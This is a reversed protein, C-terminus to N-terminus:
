FRNICQIEVDKVKYKKFYREYEDKIFDACSMSFKKLNDIKLRSDPNLPKDIKLDKLIMEVIKLEKSEISIYFRYHMSELDIDEIKLKCLINLSKINKDKIVKIVQNGTHTFQIFISKFKKKNRILYKDKM